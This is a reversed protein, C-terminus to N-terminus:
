MGQATYYGPFAILQCDPLAPDRLIRLQIDYQEALGPPLTGSRKLEEVKREIDEIVTPAAEPSAFSLPVYAFSVFGPSPMGKGEASSLVMM